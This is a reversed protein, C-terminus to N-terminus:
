PVPYGLAEREDLTVFDFGRARFGDIIGPLARYTSLYKSASDHMLVIGGDQARLANRTIAAMSNARRTDGSDVSWLVPRMGARVVADSVASNTAGLPPRLWRPRVGAVEQLALSGSAIDSAMKAESMRSLPKHSYGHSAVTHGDRVETRVIWAHNRALNGEVFFTARIGERKLLRLVARTTVPSPGDDFTLAVVRPGVAAIAVTGSATAWTGHGIRARLDFRGRPLAALPSLTVVGDPSEVEESGVVFWGTTGAPAAEIVVLSDASRPSRLTCTVLFPSDATVATPAAIALAVASPSTASATASVPVNAGLAGLLVLAALVAHRRTGARM